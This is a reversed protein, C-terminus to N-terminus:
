GKEDVEVEGGRLSWRTMERRGGRGGGGGAELRWRWAWGWGEGGLSYGVVKVELRWRGVEVKYM